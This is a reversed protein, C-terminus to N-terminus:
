KKKVSMIMDRIWERAENYEGRPLLVGILFGHHPFLATALVRGDATTFIRVPVDRGEVTWAADNSLRANLRDSLTNRYVM